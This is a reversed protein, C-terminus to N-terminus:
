DLSRVRFRGVGNVALRVAEDGVLDVLDALAFLGSPRRLRLTLGRQVPYGPGAPKVPRVTTPKSLSVRCQYARRM